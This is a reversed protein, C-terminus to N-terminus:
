THTRTSFHRSTLECARPPPFHQTGTSWPPWRSSRANQLNPTPHLFHPSSRSQTSYYDRRHAPIPKFYILNFILIASPFRVENPKPAPPKKEGGGGRVTVDSVCDLSGPDGPLGSDRGTCSNLGAFLGAGFNGDTSGLLFAASWLPALGRGLM